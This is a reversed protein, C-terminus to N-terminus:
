LWSGMPAQQGSSEGERKPMFPVKRDVRHCGKGVVGLTVMMSGSKKGQYYEDSDWLNAQKNTEM